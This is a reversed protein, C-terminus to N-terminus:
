RSLFFVALAACALGIIHTVTVPEKLFLFGLVAPIVIYMGSLPVVVSAPGRRLAIFFFVLALGYALGAGLAMPHPKTWKGTSDTLAFAAVPVVTALTSWFALGQPSVSSSITKAFFGWAGWLVLAFVSLLRYDM